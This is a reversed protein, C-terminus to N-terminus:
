DSVNRKKKRRRRGPLPPRKHSAPSITGTSADEQQKSTKKKGLQAKQLQAITAQLGAGVKGAGTGVRRKSAKSGYLTERHDDNTTKIAAAVEELSFLPETRGMFCMKQSGGRRWVGHDKECFARYFSPIMGM